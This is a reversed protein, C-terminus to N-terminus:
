QARLPFSRRFRRPRNTWSSSPLSPMLYDRLHVSSFRFQVRNRRQRVSETCTGRPRNFKDINKHHDGLQRDREKRRKRPREKKIFFTALSSGERCSFSFLGAQVRWGRPFQRKRAHRPQSSVRGHFLLKPYFTASTPSPPCDHRKECGPLNHRQGSQGGRKRSLGGPFFEIETYTGRTQACPNSNIPRIIRANRPVKEPQNELSTCPLKFTFIIHIFNQQSISSLFSFHTM